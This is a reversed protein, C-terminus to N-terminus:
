LKELLMDTMQIRFPEKSDMRMLISVLKQVMRCLGAYRNGFVFILSCASFWLILLSCNTPKSYFLSFKLFSLLTSRTITVALSMTANCLLPRETVM